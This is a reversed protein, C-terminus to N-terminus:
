ASFRRRSRLPRASVASFCGATGHDPDLRAGPIAVDREEPEGPREGAPGEVPAAGIQDAAREDVAPRGHRRRLQRAREVPSPHVRQEHGVVVLVVHPGRRQEAPVSAQHRLDVGGAYRPEFAAEGLLCVPAHRPAPRGAHVGLSEAGLLGHARQAELHDGGRAVAGVVDAEELALPSPEERPVEEQGLAQAIEAVVLVQVGQDGGELAHRPQGQRADEARMAPGHSVPRGRQAPLGLM